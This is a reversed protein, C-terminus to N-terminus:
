LTAFLETQHKHLQQKAIVSFKRGTEYHLSLVSIKASAGTINTAGDTETYDSRSDAGTFVGRIFFYAIM